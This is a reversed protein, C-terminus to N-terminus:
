LPLNRASLNPKIDYRSAAALAIQHKEQAKIDIIKTVFQMTDATLSIGPELILEPGNKPFAAKFENAIAYGYDSFTPIPHSFQQQLKIPMPSFFGGGLDIYKLNDQAFETLALKIM